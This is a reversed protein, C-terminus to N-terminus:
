PALSWDLVFVAYHECPGTHQVRLPILYGSYAREVYERLVEVDGTGSALEWRWHSSREFHNITASGVRKHSSTGEPENVHNECVALSGHDDSIVAMRGGCSADPRPWFMCDDLGFNADEDWHTVNM